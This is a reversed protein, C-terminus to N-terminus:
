NRRVHLQGEIHLYQLTNNSAGNIFRVAPGITAAARTNRILWAVTSGSGGERGNFTIGNAGNLDILPNGSGPDGSTTRMGAGAAPRISVTWNGGVSTVGVFTIPLTEGTTGDYDSQLEFIM